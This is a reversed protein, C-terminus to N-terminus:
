FPLNDLDDLDDVQLFRQFGDPITRWAVVDKIEETFDDKDVWIGTRSNDENLFMCTDINTNRGTDLVTLYLGTVKPSEIKANKWFFADEHYEYGHLFSTAVANEIDDLVNRISKDLIYETVKKGRDAAIALVPNDDKYIKEM